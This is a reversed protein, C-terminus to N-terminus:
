RDIFVSPLMQRLNLLSYYSLFFYRLTDLGSNLVPIDRTALLEHRKPCLSDCCRLVHLLVFCFIVFYRKIENM